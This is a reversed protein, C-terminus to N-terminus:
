LMVRSVSAPCGLVRFQPVVRLRLPPNNVEPHPHFGADQQCATLAACNGRHNVLASTVTSSEPDGPEAVTVLQDSAFLSDVVCRARDERTTAALGCPSAQHVLAEFGVPAETIQATDLFTADVAVFADFLTAPAPERAQGSVALVCAVSLMMALRLTQRTFAFGPPYLMRVFSLRPTNRPPALRIM